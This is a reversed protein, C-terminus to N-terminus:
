AANKTKPLVERVLGKRSLTVAERVAEPTVLGSYERAVQDPILGTKLLELADAVLVRTGKFILRGGCVRSDVALHEGIEIRSM